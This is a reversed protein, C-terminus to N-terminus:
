LQAYVIQQGEEIAFRVTVDLREIFWRKEEFTVNAIELGESVEQKLRAVAKVIGQIEEDSIAVTQLTALLDVQEKELRKTIQEAKATAEILESKTILEEVYIEKWRALM